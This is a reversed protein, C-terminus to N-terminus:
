IRANHKVFPANLLKPTRETFYTAMSPIARFAKVFAHMADGDTHDGIGIAKSHEIFSYLLVDCVGPDDGHVFPTCLDLCQAMQDLVVIRFRYAAEDSQTDSLHLTGAKGTQVKTIRTASQPLYGYCFSRLTHMCSLLFHFCQHHEPSELMKLAHRNCIHELICATECYTGYEDTYYPLNPFPTDLQVRDRQWTKLDTYLKEEYPISLLVHLLRIPEALGRIDWYGITPAM